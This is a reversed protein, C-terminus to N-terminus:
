ESRHSQESNSPRTDFIRISGDHLATALADGSPSFDIQHLATQNELRLIERQTSVQWFRISGDGCGGVLSSGDASFRLSRVEVNCQRQLSWTRGNNMHFMRVSGRAMGFAILEDEGVNLIGTGRAMDNFSQTGGTESIRNSDAFHDLSTGATVSVDSEPTKQMGFMKEEAVPLQIRAPAVAVSLVGEHERHTSQLLGSEDWFNVTGRSDCSVVAGNNMWAIARVTDNHSTLTQLCRFDTTSWIRVCRDRGGTALKGGDKSFAVARVDHTHESLTAVTKLTIADHITVLDDYGGAVVLKGNPSIELCSVLESRTESQSLQVGSDVSWCRIVHDDGATYVSKGDPAYAVAWAEFPHHGRLTRETEKGGPTWLNLTGGSEGIVWSEVGDTLTREITVIARTPEYPTESLSDTTLDWFLFSETAGSRAETPIVGLSELNSVETATLSLAMSQGDAALRMSEPIVPGFQRELELVGSPWSRIDIRNASQDVMVAVRSGDESSQLDVPRGLRVQGATVLEANTLQSSDGQAGSSADLHIRGLQYSYGEADMRLMATLLDHSSGVFRTEYVAHCPPIAITVEAKILTKKNDGTSGVGWLELFPIFDGDSPQRRGGVAVLSGDASISICCVEHMGYTQHMLIQGTKLDVINVEDQKSHELTRSLVAVECSADICADQRSCEGGFDLTEILEQTGVNWCQITSDRAISYLQNTQPNLRTAIITDKHGLFSKLAGGQTSLYQLEFSNSYRGPITRIRQLHENMRLVDRTKWAQSAQTMETSYERERAIWTQEEAREQQSRALAAQQDARRGAEMAAHMQQQRESATKALQHNLETLRALHWTGFSALGLALACVLGILSAITPRRITWRLVRESFSWERAEIPEGRLFARLDDALQEVTQYRDEASQQTAKRCIAILDRPLGPMEEILVRESRAMSPHSNAASETLTWDSQVFMPRGAFLEFLIVGLAFVDTAASVPTLGASSQEPAMYNPTGAMTTHDQDSSTEASRPIRDSADALLKALGFDSVVPRYKKLITPSPGSDADACELILPSDSDISQLLINAPKLDRHLIGHRHAYEVGDAVALILEVAVAVPIACREDSTRQVRRLFSALSGGACYEMVQFSVPGSQGAEHIQVINPHSLKAVVQSERVFRARLSESAIIEPRPIKIAVKRCLVPDEALHVVGFGGRGLPQEIRFREIRLPQSSQWGLASLSDPKKRSQQTRRDLELLELCGLLEDLRQDSAHVSASLRSCCKQVVNGLDAISSHAIEEDCIELLEELPQHNSMEPHTM